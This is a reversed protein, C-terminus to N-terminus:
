RHAKAARRAERKRMAERALYATRTEQKRAKAEAEVKAQHAEWKAKARANAERRAEARVAEAEAEAEMRLVEAEGGYPKGYPVRPIHRERLEYRFPHVDKRTPLSGALKAVRNAMSQPNLSVRVEGVPFSTLGDAVKAGTALALQKRLKAVRAIERDARAKAIELAEAEAKPTRGMVTKAEANAEAEVRNAIAKAERATASSLRRAIADPNDAKRVERIEVVEWGVFTTVVADATIPLARVIKRAAVRARDNRIAERAERARERAEPSGKWTGYAEATRDARALVKRRDTEDRDDARSNDANLAAIEREVALMDALESTTLGMDKAAAKMAELAEAKADATALKAM